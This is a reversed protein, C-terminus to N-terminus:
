LGVVDIHHGARSADEAVQSTVILVVLHKHALHSTNLSEDSCYELGSVSLVDGLWGYTDSTRSTDKNFNPLACYRRYQYMDTDHTQLDTGQAVQRTAVRLGLHCLVGHAQVVSQRDEDFQKM